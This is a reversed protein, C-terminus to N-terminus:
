PITFLQNFIADPIVLIHGSTMYLIWDKDQIKTLENTVPNKVALTSPGFVQRGPPIEVLPQELGWHSGGGSATVVCDHKTDSAYLNFQEAKTFPKITPMM